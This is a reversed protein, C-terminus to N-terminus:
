NAEIEEVRFRGYDPRRDGLGHPGALRFFEILEGRNIMSPLYSGDVRASWEPFCPRTRATLADRVRVMERHRFRADAWLESLTTPGDYELLAPGDALFAAKAIMGKKRRRAGEVLVAKLCHPPLCPRAEALWLGGRWELEAIRDYDADTKARKSTIAALAKTMPDLPDALRSSHMLMPGVGILKLALHEVSM